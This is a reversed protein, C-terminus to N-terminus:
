LGTDRLLSTLDKVAEWQKEIGLGPRKKGTDCKAKRKRCRNCANITEAWDAGDSKSTKSLKRLIIAGNAAQISFITM